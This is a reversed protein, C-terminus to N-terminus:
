PSVFVIHASKTMDAHQIEGAYECTGPASLGKGVEARVDDLDFPGFDAVVGAV